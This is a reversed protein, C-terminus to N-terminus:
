RQLPAKTGMMITLKNKSASIEKNELEGIIWTECRIQLYTLLYEISPFKSIAPIMNFM